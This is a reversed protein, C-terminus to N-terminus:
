KFKVKALGKGITGSNGSTEKYRANIEKMNDETKFIYHKFDGGLTNYLFANWALSAARPNKVAKEANLKYVDDFTKNMRDIEAKIKQKTRPDMDQEKLDYELADLMNKHRAADTPHEDFIQSITRLPLVVCANVLHGVIPVDTIAQMVLTGSNKELKNLASTLEPGLGYMAAFTDSIQEGRYGGFIITRILSFVRSIATNVLIIPMMGINGLIMLLAQAFQLDSIYAKVTNMVGQVGDLATLFAKGGTSKSLSRKMETDLKRIESVYYPLEGGMMILDIVWGNLISKVIYFISQFYVMLEEGTNMAAIKGSLAAQFNHGTEHLLVACIEEDTLNNNLFVSSNILIIVNMKSSKDYKFGTKSSKIHNKLDMTNVDLAFSIPCTCANAQEMPVVTIACTEFGFEDEFLNNLRIMEVDSNIRPDIKIPSKFGTTKSIINEDYVGFKRRVVGIQKIIKQIGPTRGFYAENIVQRVQFVAM